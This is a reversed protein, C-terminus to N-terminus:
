ARSHDRLAHCHSEWAGREVPCVKGRFRLQQGTSDSFLCPKSWGIHVSVPGGLCATRLDVSVEVHSRRGGGSFRTHQSTSRPLAEGSRSVMRNGRSSSAYNGVRKIGPPIKVFRRSEGAGTAWDEGRSRSRLALRSYPDIPRRPSRSRKTAARGEASLEEVVSFRPSSIM